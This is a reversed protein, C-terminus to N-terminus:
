ARAWCSPTTAPRVARSPSATRRAWSTSSWGTKRPLAAIPPATASGSSACSRLTKDVEAAGVELAPREISSASLDGLTFEPYVECVAVFELHTTSETEKPEIRPYGAVRLKGEMAAKGFAEQLAENLAEHHAEAGYQQKVMAFPVKGPRFGPMKLNRGMRKLRQEVASKLADVAVSLDLRRELPNTNETTTEM